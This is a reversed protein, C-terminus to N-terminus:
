TKRSSKQSTEFAELLKEFFGSTNAIGLYAKKHSFDSAVCNGVCGATANPNNGKEGCWYEEFWSAALFEGATELWEVIDAQILDKIKVTPAKLIRTAHQHFLEYNETKTFYKKFSKKQFAIAACFLNLFTKSIHFNGSLHQGCQQVPIDQGFREKAFPHFSTSNDSSPKDLQFHGAKGDKSKFHNRWHCSPSNM